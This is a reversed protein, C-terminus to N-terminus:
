QIVYIYLKQIFIYHIIFPGFLFITSNVCFNPSNFESFQMRLRSFARFQHYQIRYAVM